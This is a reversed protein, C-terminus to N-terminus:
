KVFEFNEPQMRFANAICFTLSVCVFVKLINKERPKETNTYFYFHDCKNTSLAKLEILMLTPLGILSHM